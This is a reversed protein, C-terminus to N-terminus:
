GRSPAYKRKKEKKVVTPLEEHVEVPLIDPKTDAAAPKQPPSTEMPQKEEDQEESEQMVNLAQLRSVSTRVSGSVSEEEEEEEEEDNDDKQLKRLISDMEKGSASLPKEEDSLSGLKKEKPAEAENAQM